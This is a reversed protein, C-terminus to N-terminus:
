GFLSVHQEKRISFHSFPSSNGEPNTLIQLSYPSSLDFWGDKTALAAISNLFTLPEREALASERLM